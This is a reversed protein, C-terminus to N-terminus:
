VRQHRDFVRAPFGDSMTGSIYQPAEVAMGGTVETPTNAATGGFSGVPRGQTAEGRIESPTNAATGSVITEEVGGAVQVPTGPVPATQPGDQSLTVAVLAGTLMILTALFAAPWVARGARREQFTGVTTSM